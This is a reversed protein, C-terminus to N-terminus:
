RTAPYWVVDRGNPILLGHKREEPVPRGIQRKMYEIDPEFDIAAVQFPTARFIEQGADALFADVKPQWERGFDGFPFRGVDYVKELGALPLFLAIWPFTGMTTGCPVSIGNPLHAVGYFNHVLQELAVMDDQPDLRPDEDPDFEQELWVGTFQPMSWIKQVTDQFTYPDEFWMLLEYHGNLWDNRAFRPSM